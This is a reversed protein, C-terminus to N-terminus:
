TPNKYLAEFAYKHDNRYGFERFGIKTAANTDYLKGNIVKKM